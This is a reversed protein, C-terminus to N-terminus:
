PTLNLIGAKLCAISPYFLMMTTVFHASIVGGKPVDHWSTHSKFVRPNAVQEATLDWDMDYALEIWPTVVTIEDFDMDGRTRLGHAIHQLLTTGCKAYPSIIIDSPKPKFNELARTENAENFFKSLVIGLEETTTARSGNPTQNKMANHGM